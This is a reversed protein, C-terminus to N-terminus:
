AHRLRKAVQGPTGGGAAAQRPHAEPRAAPRRVSPAGVHPLADDGSGGSESGSLAEQSDDGAAHEGSGVSGPSELDSGAQESSGMSDSGADASAEQGPQRQKQQQVAQAQAEGRAAPAGAARSGVAAARGAHGGAAEGGAAGAAVAAEAELLAQVQQLAGALAPRQANLAERSLVHRRVTNNDLKRLLAKYHHMEEPRLLTYVQPLLPFPSLTCQM